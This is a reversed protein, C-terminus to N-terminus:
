SEDVGSHSLKVVDDVGGSYVPAAPLANVSANAQVGATAEVARASLGAGALVGCLVFLPFVRAKMVMRRELNTRYESSRDISYWIASVRIKLSFVCINATNILIFGTGNSIPSRLRKPQMETRRAGFM